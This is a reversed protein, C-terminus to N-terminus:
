MKCQVTIGSKHVSDFVKKISNRKKKVFFALQIKLARETVLTMQSISGICDCTCIVAPAILQGSSHFGPWVSIVPLKTRTVLM